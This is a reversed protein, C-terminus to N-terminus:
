EEDEEQEELEEPAVKGNGRGNASPASAPEDKFDSVCAISAVSDGGDPKFITVGQTIRGRSTIESLNTRLVQAQESVLYVQQTEDVVEAAAVQGTKPTVKFTKLGVGGRKQVRYNRLSTLKGFGKRSIVFLKADPRVVSMSILQDGDRMTMGKMGGATRSHPTVQAVPFMISMGHRSVMIVHDNEKTLRATVLDDKPELNMIILGSRRINALASLPVRKVEGKRTALVLFMDERQLTEVGVLAKVQEDDQLAIVNILPVGKTNRSTDARLEYTKLSLVRGRDTFFLLQDHTDVVEITRVPDDEKTRMSLVGKGGRHQARYTAAPIRKAYGSQSLTVVVKEHAVLEEATWDGAEEAFDTRRPDAFKKKLEKTEKKVEALVKAPDALLDKLWQILKQLEQFEDEIKQRELAALRRLQMDLIAQAQIEDLKFRQMLGARATEVDKSARILAIVADLNNLAIRLGELIHSRAEAKKLDFESRRRVIERRFKIFEEILQKLNLVKPSGDVLALMNAAFSSQMPTFKYLNNLIVLPETGAKLEIVVRMGQRNSEDRIDSIGEFRKNKILSAIKEVLAAKNVQYPLENVIIQRRGGRAKEVVEAKARVVISGKGTLYADRIGQQGMITAGTPFDPGKVYRLLNEIPADPHDILYVIADCVEGLNHPPINTAMGVAIGSAGNVLLNPMRAPLLVPEQLTGDFNDIFDVTEQDLNVLMEEAIQSLRVETYRMAAPPDDDVSGFNGQGDILPMRMSFPQAMRVLADYIPADGHPHFKGLVEGVLRASKKYPSNPRMGLENAAYLIRRQVPKLGDRADPLARAVIVSMAYDLYSSRMEQEIRTPRIFGHATKEAKTVM